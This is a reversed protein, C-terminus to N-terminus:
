DLAFRRVVPNASLEPYEAVLRSYAARILKDIEDVLNKRDVLARASSKSSSVLVSDGNLRLHVVEESETFGFAADQGSSVREVVVSLSLALDVLTVFRGKPIIEVDGVTLEFNVGFYKYRLDMEGIAAPDIGKVDDWTKLWPSGVVPLSFSLQIMM